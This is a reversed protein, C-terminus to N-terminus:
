GVIYPSDLVLEKDLTLKMKQKAPLIRNVWQHPMMILDEVGSVIVYAVTWDNADIILDKIEGVEGDDRADVKFGEIEASSRLHPSVIFETQLTQGRRNYYRFLSSIAFPNMWAMMRPFNGIRWALSTESDEGVKFRGRRATPLQNVENINVDAHIVKDMNDPATLKDIPVLFKRQFPWIGRKVRLYKLNWSQGHFMFGAFDGLVGDNGEVKYKLLENTSFLKM